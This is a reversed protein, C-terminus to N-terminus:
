ADGRRPDQDMTSQESASPVALSETPPSHAAAPGCEQTPMALTVWDHMGGRYYCLARAPFSATRLVRIASPSQPCQPGNCFLISLGAPDLEDRRTLIQDHPMSVAGPITIGGSSGPARCDVLMAGQAVLEMLEREGVTRVGPAAEWAQLEGWTTDVAVVDPEGAVPWPVGRPDNARARERRVLVAGLGPRTM